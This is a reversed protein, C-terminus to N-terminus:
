SKVDQPVLKEAKPSRPEKLKERAVAKFHSLLYEGSDTEGQCIITLM